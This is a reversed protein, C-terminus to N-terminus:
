RVEWYKHAQIGLRVDARDRLEEILKNAKEISRKGSYFEPQLYLIAGTNRAPVHMDELTLTDDVVYKYDTSVWSERDLISEHIMYGADGKPSCAVHTILADVYGTGNTEIMLRARSGFKQYLRECIPHLNYLTPEGGTFVVTACEVRDVIEEVSYHLVESELQSRTDCWPCKLNCYAFRIFTVPVGLFRGEGQVSKFIEIIPYGTKM